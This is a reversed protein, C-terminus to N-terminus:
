VASGLRWFMSLTSPNINPGEGFRTKPPILPPHVTKVLNIHCFTKISDNQLLRSGYFDTMKDKIIVLIFFLICLILNIRVDVQALCSYVIETINFSRWAAIHNTRRELNERQPQKLILTYWLMKITHWSVM